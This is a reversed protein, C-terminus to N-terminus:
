TARLEREPRRLLEMLSHERELPQGLVREVDEVSLLRPNIWTAKLREQERAIAERKRRFAEWRADDVVGLRRGIETLRM